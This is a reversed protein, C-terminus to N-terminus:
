AAVNWFLVRRGAPPTPIHRWAKADYNSASPFPPPIRADQEYKEPATHLTAVGADCAAGVRVAHHEARPWAMQLARTLCGSGAVCWVEDPPAKLPISLAVAALAQRFAPYDVGFPVYIRRAPDAAAYAAAKATVNSLYGHPVMHIVAGLAAAKQTLPHPTKRQATFIVAEAGVLGAARALAVQAHGYAPSAYVYTLGPRMIRILARVKSGGLCFDDRVVLIGNHFHTRIPPLDVSM